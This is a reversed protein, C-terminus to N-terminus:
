VVCTRQSIRSLEVRNAAVAQMPGPVALHCVQIGSSM